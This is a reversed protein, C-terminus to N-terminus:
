NGKSIVGKDGTKRAGLKPNAKVPGAKLVPYTPREWGGCMKPETMKMQSPKSM